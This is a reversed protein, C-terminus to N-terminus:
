FNLANPNARLHELVLAAAHRVRPDPHDAARVLDQFFVEENMACMAVVTRVCASVNSSPHGWLLLLATPGGDRIDSLACASYTRLSDSADGRCLALVLPEIAPRGLASLQRMASKAESEDDLAAILSAISPSKERAPAAKGDTNAFLRKWFGMEDGKGLVTNPPMTEWSGWTPRWVREM